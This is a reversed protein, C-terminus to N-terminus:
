KLSLGEHVLHLEEIAIEGSKGNLDSSKFKVPMARDLLWTRIVTTGDFDLHIIKVDMRHTYAGTLTVTRFWNWLDTNDTMGRRLIVTAFTVSGVRQHTGYNRGGEKIVKPEMTAELGSCEAFSGGAVAKEPGPKTGDSTLRNESFVLHYRFNGVLSSETKAM